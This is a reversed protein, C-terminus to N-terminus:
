WLKDIQLAGTPHDESTSNRSALVGFGAGGLVRDLDHDNGFYTGEEPFIAEIANGSGAPISLKMIGFLLCLCISGIIVFNAIKVHIFM